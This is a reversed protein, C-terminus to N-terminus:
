KLKFKAIVPNHDSGGTEITGDIVRYSKDVYRGGMGPSALIYDITSRHPNNNYTVADKAFDRMFDVLATPGTGRIAKLPSSEFTDNFDGCIVFLADKDKTLEQDLIKRAQRCEALRTKETDGGGRKSKFHVVFAQFSPADPPDIRVQLLDRHFWTESGSGDSFREYMHSTVPGVPFRSLIAVDIGRKDNGEFCVVHQYGMDPLMAAVFQQLYFRSEVEELALVDADAARIREAIKELQEKPKAPTGEDTHYPCDHEDFLDLINFTGITVTGDFARAKHEVPPPIPLEEELVTVQDPKAVEIQPKGQYTTVEGRIRLLKHAYLTHPPQPFNKYNPQHVVATFSRATDFNLFTIKGINRAQVIRGQVIVEHDVHKPADKWDIVPIGADKPLIQGFAPLSAALAMWVAWTCRMFRHM